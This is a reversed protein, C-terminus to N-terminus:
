YRKWSTYSHAPSSFQAHRGGWCVDDESTMPKCMVAPYQAELWSRTDRRFEVLEVTLDSTVTTM